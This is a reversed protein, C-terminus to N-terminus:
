VRVEGTPFYAPIQQLYEAARRQQIIKLHERKQRFNYKNLLFLKDLREGCGSNGM